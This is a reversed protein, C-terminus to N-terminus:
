RAPLTSLHVEAFRNDLETQWRALPNWPSLAVLMTEALVGPALAAAHLRLLTVADGEFTGHRMGGADAVRSPIGARELRTVGAMVEPALGALLFRSPALRAPLGDTADLLVLRPSPQMAEALAMIPAVGLGAGLLIAPSQATAPLPKGRPGEAHLKAGARLDALRSRPPVLVVLWGEAVHTHYIPVCDTAVRSSGLRLWHGVAYATGAGTLRIMRWEDHVPANDIVELTNAETPPAMACFAGWWPTASM